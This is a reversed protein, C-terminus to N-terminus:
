PIRYEFLGGKKSRRLVQHSGYAPKRFDRLRASVSAEPQLTLEAIEELTHWRHDSMAEWVLKAQHNLRTGDRAEVYTAGGRPGDPPRYPAGCICWQRDARDIYALQHGKWKNAPCEPTLPVTM